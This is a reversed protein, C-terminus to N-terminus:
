AYKKMLADAQEGTRPKYVANDILSWGGDASAIVRHRMGNSAEIIAYDQGSDSPYVFVMVLDEAGTNM